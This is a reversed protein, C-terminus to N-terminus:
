SDEPKEPTKELRNLRGEIIQLDAFAFEIDVTEIDREGDVNGDVHPVTEDEFLRVVHALADVPAFNLLYVQM